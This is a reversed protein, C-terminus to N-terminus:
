RSRLLRFWVPCWRSCLLILRRSCTRLWNFVKFVASLVWVRCVAIILTGEKLLERVPLIWRHTGYSNFAKVVDVYHKAELLADLAERTEKSEVDDHGAGAAAKAKAGQIKEASSLMAQLQAMQGRMRVLTLERQDAPMNLFMQDFSQYHAQAQQPAPGGHGHGHGQCPVGNHSHGGAAADAGSMAGPRAQMMQALQARRM